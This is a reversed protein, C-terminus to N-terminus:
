RENPAFDPLRQQLHHFGRWPNRPRKGTLLLPVTFQAADKISHLEQWAIPMSVPAGRRARPSYPAVATSGRDNRLYDIFIRGQRAVKAMKATYLGPQEQAFHEAIARAFQKLEPWTLPGTLPSVVHLGKGGSTKVFSKLRLRALVDRLELAAAVVAAWKVRPGPDLDFILRDPRDEHLALSGWPHLELISMQALAQLGAADDVVLYEATEGKEAIPVRRLAEPTGAAAHKQFFCKGDVGKPCRLLALPRGAVHPLSLDAVASYYDALQQKTLNSEPYLVREPHTLRMPLTARKTTRKQRPIADADDQDHIQTRLSEPPGVQKALKDERLGRFSAHRLVGSDTWSGFEIQAVLEPRVWNL